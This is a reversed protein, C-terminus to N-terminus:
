LLLLKSFCNYHMIIQAIELLSVSFNHKPIWISVSKFKNNILQQKTQGTM